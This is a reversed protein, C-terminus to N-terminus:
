RVVATMGELWAEDPMAYPRFTELTGLHENHFLARHLGLATAAPSDILNSSDNASMQFLVRMEFEALLKRPIWRSVNNWTDTAALVHMGVPGGEGLLSAFSQSPTAAADEEISFRFEDDPRLSKFRQLDHVM